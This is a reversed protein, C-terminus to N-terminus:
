QSDSAQRRSRWPPTAASDSDIRKSYPVEASIQRSADLKASKPSHRIQAGSKQSCHQENGKAQWLNVLPNSSFDAEAPVPKSSAPVKKKLNLYLVFIGAIICCAIDVSDEFSQKNITSMYALEVLMDALWCIPIVVLLSGVAFKPQVKSSKKGCPIAKSGSVGYLCAM